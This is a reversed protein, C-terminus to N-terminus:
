HFKETVCNKRWFLIQNSFSILIYNGDMYYDANIDSKNISYKIQAPLKLHKGKCINKSQKWYHYYYIIM